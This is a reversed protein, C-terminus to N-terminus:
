RLTNDNPPIPDIIYEAFSTRVCFCVHMYVRVLKVPNAMHIDYATYIGTAVLFMILLYTCLDTLLLSMEMQVITYVLKVFAQV